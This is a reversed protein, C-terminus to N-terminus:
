NAEILNQLITNFTLNRDNLSKFFQEDIQNVITIAKVLRQYGEPTAVLSKARTDTAHNERKVLGKSALTRLVKSTMMVDTKAHTALEVQTVTQQQQNLWVISALLVFQVHTLDLESLGAKMKRQWLNSVQWLLFGSSENPRDFQFINSQIM